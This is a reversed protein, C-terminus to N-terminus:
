EVRNQFRVVHFAWGRAGAPLNLSPAAGDWRTQLLALGPQDPSTLLEGGLFGPMLKLDDLLRGLAELASEARSEVYWVQVASM